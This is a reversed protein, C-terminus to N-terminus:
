RTQAALRKPATMRYSDRILGAVLDWDVGTGLRIGIWGKPGVYPPSFFRRPDSGVLVSQAGPPAKCWVNMGREDNSMAFIKNRVRWTPTTHGGFVQEDAEPLTLCINRLRQLTSSAKGRAASM